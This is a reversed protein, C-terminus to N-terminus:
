EEKIVKKFYELINENNDLWFQYLASSDLSNKFKGYPNDKKRIFIYELVKTYTINEIFLMCLWYIEKLSLGVIQRFEACYKLVNKRNGIKRDVDRLTKEGTNKNVVYIYNDILYEYMKLDGETIKPTSIDDLVENGKKSTRICQFKTQGKKGKIFEIYGINSLKEIIPTNSVLFEIQQSLDEIKSQKILQLVGLEYLTLGKSTLIEYNIYM